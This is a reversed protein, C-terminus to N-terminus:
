FLRMQQDSNTASAAVPWINVKGFVGDYGPQIAIQGTRVRELAQALREGGFREIEPIPTALLVAFEGGFHDTLKMYESEVIKSGVGTQYVEGLIEILPVLMVYPPRTADTPHHYEVVGRENSRKVVDMRQQSALAQTDPTQHALEEVRHMVGVTLPRGCVHCTTGRSRTEAPSQVVGCARHGTYHYKGEEPYFEITSAITLNGENKGLFRSAIAWYIDDYSFNQTKLQLKSNQTKLKVNTQFVTAERGLKPGSHADSFSVISRQALEPIRWNMSPDSSLGTEVAWISNSLTGFCEDLSDFGGKSGYVSFWPTWAHAPIVLCRESAALAIEAIEQAALGVIPRGDSTLNCGRKLLERNVREAVGFDPAFVLTHVRRQRGGQTYISSIEASLLFVPEWAQGANSVAADAVSASGVYEPKVQFLGASVERLQTRLERFWITHMWDGTAVLGIGKMRAWRSIEPLVMNKSVARSYKSHIQLDAIIEM